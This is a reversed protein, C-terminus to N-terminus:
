ESITHYSHSIYIRCHRREYPRCKKQVAKLVFLIKYNTFVIRYAIVILFYFCFSYLKISSFNIYNISLILCLILNEKYVLLVFFFICFNNLTASKCIYFTISIDFDVNYVLFVLSINFNHPFIERRCLIM